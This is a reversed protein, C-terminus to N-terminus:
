LWQHKSSSFEQKPYDCWFIRTSRSRFLKCVFYRLTFQDTPYPLFIEACPVKKGQWECYKLVSLESGKISSESDTCPMGTNWLASMVSLYARSINLRSITDIIKNTQIVENYYQDEQFVPDFLM